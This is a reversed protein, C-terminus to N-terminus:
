LQKPLSEHNEGHQTILGQFLLVPALANQPDIAVAPVPSGKLFPLGRQEARTRRIQRRGGTGLGCGAIASASGFTVGCRESTPWAWMAVGLLKPRGEPLTVPMCESASMMLAISSENVVVNATAAQNVPARPRRSWAKAIKAADRAKAPPVLKM